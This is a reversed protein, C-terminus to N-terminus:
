RRYHQQPQQQQQQNSGPFGHMQQMQPNFNSAQGMSIGQHFSAAGPDHQMTADNPPWPIATPDQPMVDSNPPWSAFQNQPLSQMAPPAGRNQPMSDGNSSWPDFSNPQINQMAPPAGRNMYHQQSGQVEYRSGNLDGNGHFVGGTNFSPADGPINMPNGWTPAPAVLSQEMQPLGSHQDGWPPAPPGTSQQMQPLSNHQNGWTPAPPATSQQPFSSLHDGWTPAPPATSQQPFSSNQNMWTPVPPATSQHPFNSLHDGWTPAPPATSQRPVSSNQNMWTPAPPGTSQQMESLMPGLTNQLHAFAQSQPMPERADEQGDLPGSASSNWMHQQADYPSPGGVVPPQSSWNSAYQGVGANMSPLEAYATGTISPLQTLPAQPVPAAAFQAQVANQPNPQLRSDVEAPLQLAEVEVQKLESLIQEASCSYGGMQMVSKLRLGSKLRLAQLQADLETTDTSLDTRCLISQTETKHYRLISSIEEELTLPKSSSSVQKATSEPYFIASQTVRPQQKVAPAPVSLRAVQQQTKKQAPVARSIPVYAATSVPEKKSAVRLAASAKEKAKELTMKASWREKFTNASVSRRHSHERVLSSLDIERYSIWAARQHGRAEVLHYDLGTNIDKQTSRIV